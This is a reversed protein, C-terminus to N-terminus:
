TMAVTADPNAAENQSTGNVPPSPEAGSRRVDRFASTVIATVIGPRWAAFTVM